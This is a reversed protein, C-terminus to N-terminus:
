GQPKLYKYGLNCLNLFWTIAYASLLALPPLLPVYHTESHYVAAYLTSAFLGLVWIIMLVCLFKDKKNTMTDKLLVVFGLISLISLEPKTFALINSIRGRISPTCYTPELWDFGTKCDSYGERWFSYMSHIRTFTGHYLFPNSLVFVIFAIGVVSLIGQLIMSYSMNNFPNETNESDRNSNWKLLIVVGMFMLFIIVMVGGTLKSGTALGIALGVSFLYFFSKFKNDRLSQLYSILLVITLTSFFIMVMGPETVRGYFLMLPHRSLILSALVGTKWGALKLGIIYVLFCTLGGLLAIPIRTAMLIDKPPVNGAQINWEFDKSTDLNWFRLPETYGHLYLSAGWMYKAIQPSPWGLYAFQGTEGEDSWWISDFDGNILLNFYFSGSTIFKSEDWHYGQSRLDWVFPYMLIMLLIFQPCKNFLKRLYNIKGM